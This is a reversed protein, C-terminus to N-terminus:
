KFEYGVLVAKNIVASHWRSPEMIYILFTFIWVIVETM